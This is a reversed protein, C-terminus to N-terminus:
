RASLSRVQLADVIRRRTLESIGETGEEEIAALAEGLSFNPTEAHLAKAVQVLKEPTLAQARSLVYRYKGRFVEDGTGEAMSYRACVGPVNYSKEDSIISAILHRLEKIASAAIIDMM